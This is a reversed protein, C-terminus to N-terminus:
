THNLAKGTVVSLLFKRATKRPVRLVWDKAKSSDLAWVGGRAYSWHSLSHM